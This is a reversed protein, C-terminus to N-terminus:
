SFILGFSSFSSLGPDRTIEYTQGIGPHLGSTISLCSPWSSRYRYLTFFQQFPLKKSLDFGCLPRDAGIHNLHLNSFGGDDSMAPSHHAPAPSLSSQTNKRQGDPDSRM